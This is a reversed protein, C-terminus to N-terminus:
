RHHVNPVKHPKTNSFILKMKFLLFGEQFTTASPLMCDGVLAPGLGLCHSTLHPPTNSKCVEVWGCRTTCDGVLAPGLGLCHSTLHPPTNSKCVEVWGCRTTCDGVLAPGLGLCHPSTPHKVQMGGGVWVQYHLGRHPSTRTRSLTLHPPTNSKCVEM